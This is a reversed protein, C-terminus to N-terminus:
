IVSLAIVSFDFVGFSVRVVLHFGEKESFLFFGYYRKRFPLVWRQPNRGHFRSRHRVSRNQALCRPLQEKNWPQCRSQTPVVRASCTAVIRPVSSGNWPRSAVDQIPHWKDGCLLCCGILCSDFAFCSFWTEFQSIKYNVFSCTTLMDSIAKRGVNAAVIVDDQFCSNGAAVAKATALTIPKTVRVLDEPTYKVRPM